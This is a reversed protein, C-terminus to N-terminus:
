MKVSVKIYVICASTFGFLVKDKGYKNNGLFWILIVWYVSGNERKIQCEEININM